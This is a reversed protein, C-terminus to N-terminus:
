KTKRPLGHVVLNYGVSNLKYEGQSVNELFGAKKSNPLVDKLSRPLPYKAQKLYKDLDTSNISSKREELPALESVYYAVLLTMEIVSSPLKEEKLQRIDTPQTPLSLQEFSSQALSSRVQNVIPPDLVIAMRGIVYSLVRKRIPDDLDGLTQLITKIAELEPDQQIESM